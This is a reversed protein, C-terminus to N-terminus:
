IARQRFGALAVTSIYGNLQTQGAKIRNANISGCNRPNNFDDPVFLRQLGAKRYKKIRRGINLEKHTFGERMM